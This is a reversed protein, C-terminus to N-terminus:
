LRDITYEMMWCTDENIKKVIQFRCKEYARIARLNAVAPDLIIRNVEKDRAIDEIFLKIMITGVGKNFLEPYGIFQDIRFIIFNM